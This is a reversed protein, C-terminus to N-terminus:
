RRCHGANDRREAEGCSEKFALNCSFRVFLLKWALSGADGDRHITFPQMSVLITCYTGGTSRVLRSTFM